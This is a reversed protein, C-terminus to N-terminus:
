ANAFEASAGPFGHYIKKQVRFTIYGQLGATDAKLDRVLSRVFKRERQHEIFHERQNEALFGCFVALFLMLFQFLYEKWKKEHHVHGHHHIEMDTTQPEINSTQTQETRELNGTEQRRYGPVPMQCSSM